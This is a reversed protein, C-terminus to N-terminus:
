WHDRQKRLAKFVDKSTIVNEDKTKLNSILAASELRLFPNYLREQGLTMYPMEDSTLQGVKEKWYQADSNNPEWALSFDLNTKMYDHGPYLITHDPLPMLERQFTEYMEEVDGGNFCNGACANFLTDGSFLIPVEESLTLLCVHV